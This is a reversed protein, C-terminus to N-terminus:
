GFYMYNIYALYTWRRKSLMILYLHKVASLNSDKEVKLATARATPRQYLPQGHQRHRRSAEAYQTFTAKTLSEFCVQIATTISLLNTLKVNKM